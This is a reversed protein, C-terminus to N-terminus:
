KRRWVSLTAVRDFEEWEQIESHFKTITALHSDHFAILSGHQMKSEWAQFDRKVGEYSHDADIFLFLLSSDAVHKSADATDSMITNICIDLGKKKFINLVHAHCDEPQKYRFRHRVLRQDFLDVTTLKAGPMKSIHEGLLCASRGQFTGLEAYHGVGLVRPIRVLWEAEPRSLLGKTDAIASPFKTTEKVGAMIQNYTDFNM